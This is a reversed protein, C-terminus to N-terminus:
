SGHSVEIWNFKHSEGSELALFTELFGPNTKYSVTLDTLTEVPFEPNFEWVTNCDILWSAVQRFHLTEVM